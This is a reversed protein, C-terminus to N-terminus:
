CHPVAFQVNLILSSSFKYRHSTALTAHTLQTRSLSFFSSSLSVSSSFLARFHIEHKGIVFAYWKETKNEDIDVVSEREREIERERVILEHTYSRLHNSPLFFSLKLSSPFRMIAECIKENINWNREPQKSSEVVCFKEQIHLSIKATQQHHSLLCCTFLIYKRESRKHQAEEAMCHHHYAPLTKRWSM